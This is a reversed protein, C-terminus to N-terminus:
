EVKLAKWGWKGDRPNQSAVALGEILSGNKERIGSLQVLEQPIFVNGALGFGKESNIRLRESFLRVIGKSPVIDTPEHVLIENVPGHDSEKRSIVKLRVFDGEAYPIGQLVAGSDREWSLHTVSKKRNVHDVVAIEWPLLDFNEFAERSEVKMIRLKKGPDVTVQIADGPQLRCLAPYNRIRVSTYILNGDTGALVLRARVSKEPDDPRIFTRILNGNFRPLSGFVYDVAKGAHERYFSKNEVKAEAKLFWDEELLRTKDSPINYGQETRTKISLELEYKAEQDLGAVHLLKGFSWRTNILFKEESNCSVANCYCSIATEVDDESLIDGLLAWSWFDSKKERVVPIVFAKADENRGLAVLMKAKYYYLWINAPFKALASDLPEQIGEIRMRNGSSFLSKALALISREALGPYVKGDKEFPSFDETRFKVWDFEGAWKIMFENDDKFHSLTQFLMLSNLQSPKEIQLKFYEELLGKWVERGAAQNSILTKLYKYLCWGYANHYRSIDGSYQDRLQRFLELANGHEGNYDLQSARSLTREPMSTRSLLYSVQNKLIQEEEPIDLNELKGSYLFIDDESGSALAGKLKDYLVWGYARIAWPDSPNRVYLVEALTLAEDIRGEKRLKFINQVDSM